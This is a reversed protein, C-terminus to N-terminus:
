QDTNLEAEVSRHPNFRPSIKAKCDWKKIGRRELAKRRQVRERHCISAPMQRYDTVGRNNWLWGLYLATAYLIIILSEM